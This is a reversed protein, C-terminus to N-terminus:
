TNPNEKAMNTLMSFMDTFSNNLQEVTASELQYYAQAEVIDAQDKGEYKTIDTQRIDIIRMIPSKASLNNFLARFKEWRMEDQMDILDIQYDFLFSAYIAEADKEYSFWSVPSLQTDDDKGSRENSMYPDRAIYQSIEQLTTAVAEYDDATTPEYEDDIFIYWGARLKETMTMDDREVMEYWQLVKNYALNLKFTGLSTEIGDDLPESLKLM